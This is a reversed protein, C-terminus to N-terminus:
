RMNDRVDRPGYSVHVGRGFVLHGRHMQAWVRRLKGPRDVHRRLLEWMCNSRYSVCRVNRELVGTIGRVGDRM